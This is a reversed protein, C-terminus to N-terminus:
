AEARDDDDLLPEALPSTTSTAADDEESHTEAAVRPSPGTGAAEAATGGMSAPLVLWAFQAFLSVISLFALFGRVGFLEEVDVALQAVATGVVTRTILLLAAAKGAADGFPQVFLANSSGFGLAIGLSFAYCNLLLYPVSDRLFRPGFAATLGFASGLTRVRLSLKLLRLPELWPSGKYRSLLAALCVNVVLFISAVSGMLLATHVTSVGFHDQLLPSVTSLYSLLGAFGFTASCLSGLAAGVGPDTRCSRFRALVERWSVDDARGGNPGKKTTKPRWTEPLASATLVALTAGVAALGGFIARWGFRVGVVGGITPSVAIATLRLSTIISLVKLRHQPTELVDRAVATCVTTGSEGIGQVVRFALFTWIGWPRTPTVACGATGIVYYVFARMFAGRRGIRDALAGIALTAVGKALWNLQLTLGTVVNTTDLEHRLRTTNPVYSDTSFPGLVDICGILVWHYWRFVVPSLAAATPPPAEEDGAPTAGDDGDDDDHDPPRAKLDSSAM